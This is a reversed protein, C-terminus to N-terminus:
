YKKNTKTSCAPYIHGFNRYARGLVIPWLSLPFLRGESGGCEVISRGARNIRLAYEVDSDYNANFASVELSYITNYSELSSM